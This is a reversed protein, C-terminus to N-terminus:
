ALRDTISVVNGKAFEAQQGLWDAVAQWAERLQQESKRVYHRGTIDGAQRHNLMKRLCYTSVLPEAISAFTSRLMKRNFPVGCKERIAAVAEYSWAAKFLLEGPAKDAAQKEVIAWAQKSLVLTHDGRNKTDFLTITQRKFDINEVKIELPESPRCGTLALFQIYRVAATEEMENLALWWRGVDAPDISKDAARAPPLSIRNRRATTKDFPSGAITVGHFNLTARLIQMAYASQREGRLQAASYCDHIADASITDIPMDALPALLGAKTVRGTTKTTSGKVAKLYDRRTSEKLPKGDARRARQTYEMLAERLTMAAPKAREARKAANPSEGGALKRIAELAKTRAMAITTDPYTGCSVRVPEGGAARRFVSFSKHGTATVRLALGNVKDDYVTIRKGPEPLPLADLKGKTFTFRSSEM